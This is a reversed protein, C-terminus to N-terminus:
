SIETGIVEKRKKHTNDCFTMDVENITDNNYIDISYDNTYTM